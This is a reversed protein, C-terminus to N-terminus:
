STLLVKKIISRRSRDDIKVNISYQSRSCNQFWLVLLKIVLIRHTIFLTIITIVEFQALAAGSNLSEELLQLSLDLANAGGGASSSIQHTDPDYVLDPEEINDEGSYM